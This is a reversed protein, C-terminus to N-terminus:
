PEVGPAHADARVGPPVRASAVRWGKDPPPVAPMPTGLVKCCTTSRSPSPTRWSRTPSSIREALVAGNRLHQTRDFLSQYDREIVM